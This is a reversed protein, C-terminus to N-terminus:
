MMFFNIGINVYQQEEDLLLDLTLTAIDDAIPDVRADEEQSLVKLYCRCEPCVEARVAKHAGELGYYGIDKTSTCQSCTARVVHWESGCLACHLYRLGKAAGVALIVSAVPHSGCVPCLIPLEPRGIQSPQLRQAMHTWQVQLAAGIFPAAALDLRAAPGHLLVDAQTELWDSGGEFLPM